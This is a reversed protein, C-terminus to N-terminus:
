NYTVGLATLEEKAQELDKFHIGNIGLTRAAEINALTDDLFVCESPVLHYRNLLHKYIAPDPKILNVKFSFVGGDMYSLFDMAYACEVLVKEFFNSLFLVQYGNRKLDQIFPIAYDYRRLMGSINVFVERIEKEIDPDNEVFLDIIARDPLLGLDFQKWDESFVTAKALRELTAADFGFSAYFEPWSFEALVNGIDFIITKIM